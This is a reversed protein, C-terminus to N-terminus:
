IQNESRLVGSAFHQPGEATQLMLCGDPAIGLCRGTISRGALQITLIQGHQLCLRDAQAAVQEPAARLRALQGDLAQLIAILIAVPDCTQATIENLTGATHRIEPPAADLPNNINLGIGLVHRRNAVSEILIGGLKRDAAFIDNPWHLGVRHPAALPALSEVVAVATALSVLAAAWHSAPLYGAPIVVSFTLSGPGSWWRNAGRGRGATQQDAVVLLPLLADATAAHEKAWDNTSGLEAFHAVAAVFTEAVIRDEDISPM